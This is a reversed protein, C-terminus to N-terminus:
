KQIRKFAEEVKNLIADYKVIGQLVVPSPLMNEYQYPKGKIHADLIVASEEFIKFLPQAVIGFVKGFKVNENHNGWRNPWPVDSPTIM